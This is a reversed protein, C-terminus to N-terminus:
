QEAQFQLCEIGFKVLLQASEFLPLGMVGSYSGDINKVFIAAYGQIGYAGAKDAPEGTAWYAAAEDASIERFCVRTESVASRRDSTNAVVVASLVRHERNSLQQLMRLADQEDAPKGLVEGDCVVITDAAIIVTANELTLQQLAAVAKEDAMRLVFDRASEEARRSEDIDQSAVSFQLGLQELLEQRRPSASALILQPMAM